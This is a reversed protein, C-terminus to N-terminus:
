FDFRLPRYHTTIPLLRPPLVRLRFVLAPEYGGPPTLLGDDALHPASDRFDLRSLQQLLPIVQAQRDKRPIGEGIQKTPLVRGTVFHGDQDVVVELVLSLGLNGGLSFRGYTAFNGLSYAVLRGKYVEFGRPVHPGHGIVLDAGADIVRRAFRRLHGRNEGLFTETGHPVRTAGGGEAGGHFSVIVLDHQRALSDVLMAAGDHDNLYNGTRATHFAVMGIRLGNRELSATTGPRGSWVIGLSDLMRETSLQGQSGFDHAHNNATSALDIGAEKLYRGYRTPTRFAYCNGGSGCKSSTGGNLFPGELNAFTIDADRLWDLVDALLNEGDDPPLYDKPFDTGLMVDGVARIRLFKPTEPQAQVHPALLVLLVLLRGMPFLHRGLYPPPLSFVGGKQNM